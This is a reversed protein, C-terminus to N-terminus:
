LIVYTYQINFNLTLEIIDFVNYNPYYVSFTLHMGNNLSLDRHVLRHTDLGALVQILTTNLILIILLFRVNCIEQYTLRSRM